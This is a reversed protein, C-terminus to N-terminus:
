KHSVQPRTISRSRLAAMLRARQCDLSVEASATGVAARAKSREVAQDWLSRCRSARPFLRDGGACGDRSRSSPGPDSGLVRVFFRRPLRVTLLCRQAVQNLQDLRVPPDLYSM